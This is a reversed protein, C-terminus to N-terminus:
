QNVIPVIVITIITFYRRDLIEHIYIRLETKELAEALVNYAARRNDQRVYCKRLMQHGAGRTADPNVVLCTKIEQNTLGLLIGLEVLTSEDAITMSLERLHQGTVEHAM